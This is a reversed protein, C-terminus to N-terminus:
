GAALGAGLARVRGDAGAHPVAGCPAWGNSQWWALADRLTLLFPGILLVGVSEGLSWDVPSMWNLAVSTVASRYWAALAAAMPGTLLLAVAGFGVIDYPESFPRRQGLLARLVLASAVANMLSGILIWATVEASLGYVAALMIRITAGVALVMPWERRPRSLLWAIFAGTAPWWVAPAGPETMFSYGLAATAAFITAEVFLRATRSLYPVAPTASATM